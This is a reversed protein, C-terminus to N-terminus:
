PRAPELRVMDMQASAGKVLGCIYAQRRPIVKQLYTVVQIFGPKRRGSRCSAQMANAEIQDGDLWTNRSQRAVTGMSEDTDHLGGGLLHCYYRGQLDHSGIRGM